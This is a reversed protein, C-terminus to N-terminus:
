QLETSRPLSIQRSVAKGNMQHITRLLRWRSSRTAGYPLNELQREKEQHALWFGATRNSPERSCSFLKMRVHSMCIAWRAGTSTSHQFRKRNLPRGVCFRDALWDLSLFQQVIQDVISGNHRLNTLGVGRLEPLVGTPGFIQQNFFFPSQASIAAM